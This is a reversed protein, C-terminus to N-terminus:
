GQELGEEGSAAEEIGLIAAVDFGPFSAAM